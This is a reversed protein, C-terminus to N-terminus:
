PKLYADMLQKLHDILRIRFRPDEFPKFAENENCLMRCMEENWLAQNISGFLTGVTMEVDTERFHKLRIGELIIQKVFRANGILIEIIKDHMQPRQVMSIERQITLHFARREFFGNVFGEIVQYIKEIPLLDKDVVLEALRSKMFAVKSEVLAEFLGEKSGFYYSIMAVNVGATECIYRVSTGELGQQSFLREAVNMIHDKSSVAVM